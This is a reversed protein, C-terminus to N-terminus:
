ARVYFILAPPRWGYPSQCPHLSQFDLGFSIDRQFSKIIHIKVGHKKLEDSLIGPQGLAVAVEFKDKPLNTALDFVYRQAGGWNGKTIVFLIKQKPNVQM